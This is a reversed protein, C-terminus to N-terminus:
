LPYLVKDQTASEDWWVRRVRNRNAQRRARVPLDGRKRHRLRLRLSTRECYGAEALRSGRWIGDGIYLQWVAVDKAEM